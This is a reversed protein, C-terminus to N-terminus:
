PELMYSTFNTGERSQRNDRTTVPCALWIKYQCRQYKVLVTDSQVNRSVFKFLLQNQDCHRSLRVGCPFVLLNVLTFDCDTVECRLTSTPFLKRPVHPLDRGGVVPCGLCPYRSERRWTKTMLERSERNDMLERGSCSAPAACCTALMTRSSRM